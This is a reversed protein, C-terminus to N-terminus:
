LTMSSLSGHAAASIRHYKLWWPIAIHRPSYQCINGREPTLSLSPLRPLLIKYQEWSEPYQLVVRASSSIINVSLKGFYFMKFWIVFLEKEWWVVFMKGPSLLQPWTRSRTDMPWWRRSPRSSTEWGSIRFLQISLHSQLMVSLVQDNAYDTIITSVPLDDEPLSRM